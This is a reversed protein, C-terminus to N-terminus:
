ASEGLNVDAVSWLAWVDLVGASLTNLDGGTSRATVRISTESGASEVGAQTSWLAVVAARLARVDDALEEAKDRLAEVELEAYTAGIVLGGIENDACGMVPPLLSDWLPARAVRYNSGSVAAFGDYGAVFKDTDAITGVDFAVASVAGGSFATETKLRLGHLEGGAPLKFLEITNSAAGAAFDAPVFRYRRWWPINFGAGIQYNRVDLSKADVV